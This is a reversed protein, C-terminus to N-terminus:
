TPRAPDSLPHRVQQSRVLTLQREGEDLRAPERETDWDPAFLPRLAQQTREWLGTNLRAILYRGAPCIASGGPAPHFNRSSRDTYAKAM